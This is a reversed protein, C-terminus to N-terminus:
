FKVEKIHLDEARSLETSTEGIWGCTQNLGTYVRVFDVCPLNVKRGLSDVAWSIDFGNKDGVDNPHNDVYGWDFAFLVWYSGNGSTDEANSPLCTGSFSIEEASLWQPFYEQRHYANKEVFGAGGFNDRWAIYTTDTIPTRKKPTAVHDADPRRYTIKYNHKTASHFYHSGALEYFEDDPVGNQNRDIAVQVIGAECSGGLKGTPNAEAYFANGFIQFDKEGPVNVVSHDFSFTVYGGFGGLSIMVDNTGSISEQVKRLIDAETDGEDYFPMEGIFQGPAPRYEHVKDIFKSYAVQEEKVRVMVEQFVPNKADKIKLSLFYDGTDLACFVLDREVSVVSDGLRWEYGDGSFEPHLILTRMREVVYTEDIGLSVMPASGQERCAGLVTAAIILWKKMKM